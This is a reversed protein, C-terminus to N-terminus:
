KYKQGKYIEKNTNEIIVHYNLMTPDIEEAKYLYPLAQKYKGQKEYLQYMLYNTRANNKNLEMAKELDVYAKELKSSILYRYGREQYYKASDPFMRILESYGEIAYTKDVNILNKYTAHDTAGNSIAASYYERAKKYDDTDHYFVGLISYSETNNPELEIADYCYQIAKNIDGNIFYYRAFANLTKTKEPNIEIAKNLDSLAEKSQSSNTYINARSVYLSEDTPNEEILKSYQDISETYRDEEAYACALVRHGRENFPYIQISREFYEVANESMGLRLYANGTVIYVNASDIKSACELESNLYLDIFAQASTYKNQGFHHMALLWNEISKGNIAMNDHLLDDYKTNLIDKNMNCTLITEADSNYGERILYKYDTKWNLNDQGSVGYLIIDARSKKLREEAESQSIPASNKDYIVRFPKGDAIAENAIDYLEDSITRKNSDVDNISCIFIELKDGQNTGFRYTLNNFYNDIKTEFIQPMFIGVLAIISGIIALKSNRKTIRISQKTTILAEQNLKDNLKTDKNLKEIKEELKNVDGFLQLFLTNIDFKM